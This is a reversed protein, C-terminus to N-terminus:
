GSTARGECHEKLLRMARKANPLKVLRFVLMYLVRQKLGLSAIVTREVETRSGADRLRFQHVYRGTLDSAAFEFLTPGEYQTVSLEATIRKGKSIARSRYTKGPALVSADTPEIELQDASWTPHSTLDCVEAFVREVPAAVEISVRYEPM